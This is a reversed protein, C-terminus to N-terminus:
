SGMRDSELARLEEVWRAVGCPGRWEPHDEDNVMGATADLAQLLALRELKERAAEALFESRNKQGVQRDIADLLSQPLVIRTRTMEKSEMTM